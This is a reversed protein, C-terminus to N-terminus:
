YIGVGAEHMPQTQSELHLFSQDLFSLREYAYNPM